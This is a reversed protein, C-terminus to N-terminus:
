RDRGGLAGAATPEAVTAGAPRPAAAAEADEIARHWGPHRLRVYGESVWTTVMAAMLPWRALTYRMHDLLKIAILVMAAVHLTSAWFLVPGPIPFVYRMAKLLGTVTILAIVFAWTPFSIVKEYYTFQETQPPRPRMDLSLVRAVAEGLPRPFEHALGRLHHIWRERPVLLSRDGSLWWYTVFSATAFLILAGGIYHVRYILYLPIPATVDLIGGLYQWVGTPLALLFGVALIWHGIATGPSFRRIAGDGKRRATRRAARPWGMLLGVVVGLGIAFPISKAFVFNDSLEDTWPQAGSTAQGLIAAAGALMVLVGVLLLLWKTARVAQKM